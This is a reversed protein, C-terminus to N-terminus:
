LFHFSIEYIQRSGEHISDFTIRNGDHSWRPHLDCRIDGTFPLPAHYEGLSYMVQDELSYLMLKSMRQENNPYTDCVIWKYDPSFCAHGDNPFMGNGFPTFHYSRDRFSVFQMSNDIITSSVLIDTENIWAFHSTCYAFPIQCQLDSGNLNVTWMSDYV